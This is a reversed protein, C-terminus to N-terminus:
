RKEMSETGCEVGELLHVLLEGHGYVGGTTSLRSKILKQEGLGTGYHIPRVSQPKVGLVLPVTPDGRPEQIAQAACHLEIRPVGYEEAGIDKVARM